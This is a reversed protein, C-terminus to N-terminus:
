YTKFCADATVGMDTRSKSSFDRKNGGHHCLFLSVDSTDSM